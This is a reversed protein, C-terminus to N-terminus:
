SGPVRKRVFGLFAADPRRPVPKDRRWAIWDSLIAYPDYGPAPRGEIVPHFRPDDPVPPLATFTAIDRAPDFSGAAGGAQSIREKGPRSGTMM